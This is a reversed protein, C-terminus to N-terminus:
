KASAHKALQRDMQLLERGMMFELEVSRSGIEAALRRAEGQGNAKGEYAEKRAERFKALLGETEPDFWEKLGMIDEVVTVYSEGSSASIAKEFKVTGDAALSLPYIWGHNISAIVFPSHTAVFIQAKPFLRQFAPLVKRQWAPHLHSEPEDLLFIAEAQRPDSKGQLWIEMMVSAHVIWGIISRLGDPLVDFALLTGGWKVGLSLEPFRTLHFQFQVGTIQSVTLEIGKMLDTPNSKGAASSSEDAHLASAIKLNAIAQLLEQSGSEPRTFSLCLERSPKQVNALVSVKADSVYANGSYAFAPIQQHQGFFNGGVFQEWNLNGQGVNMRPWVGFNNDAAPGDDGTACIAVQTNFGKMRKLLSVHNGLLAAIISLLRTKGTGNVGTFLHIEGLNAPKKEVPLLDLRFEGFPPFNDSVIARIM